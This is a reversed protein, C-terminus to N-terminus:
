EKRTVYTYYNCSAFFTHAEMAHHQEELWTTATGSPLLGAKEVFPAYTEAFSRFYSADGIEAVADGWAAQMRLGLGPLLRPLDRMIRPNNFSATALALDMTRGFEPDPHAYTLSSYDGDFIAVVGGPRAVRVMERLVVRPDTVHSIVTHAFVADFSADPFDLRHADGARFHVRRDLQEKATLSRAADIFAASHDVGVATGRFDDRRLLRRITAGTGCGAELVREEPGVALFRAYKDFLSAFVEDRARSELRAIIREISAEDLENVFRHPDRAVM